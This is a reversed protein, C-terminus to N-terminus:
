TPGALVEYMRAAVKKGISTVLNVVEVPVNEKALIIVRVM